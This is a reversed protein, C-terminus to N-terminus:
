NTSIRLAPINIKCHARPLVNVSSTGTCDSRCVTGVPLQLMAFYSICADSRGVRTSVGGMGPLYDRKKRLTHNTAKEVYGSTGRVTDRVSPGQRAWDRAAHSIEVFGSWQARRHPVSGLLCGSQVDFLQAISDPSGRAPLQWRTPDSGAGAGHPLSEM